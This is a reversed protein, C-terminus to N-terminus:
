FGKSVQGKRSTSQVDDTHRTQGFVYRSRLVDLSERRNVGSYSRM